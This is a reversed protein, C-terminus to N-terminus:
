RWPLLYGPADGAAGDGAAGRVFDALGGVFAGVFVPDEDFFLSFIFGGAADDDGLYM